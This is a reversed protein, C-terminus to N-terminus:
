PELKISILILANVSIKFYTHVIIIWSQGSWVVTLVGMMFILIYLGWMNYYNIIIYFSLWAYTDTRDVFYEPLYTYDFQFNLFFWGGVSYCSMILLYFFYVCVCMAWWVDYVFVLDTCIMLTRTWTGDLWIMYIIILWDTTAIHAITDINWVYQM